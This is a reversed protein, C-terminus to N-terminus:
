RLSSNGASESTMLRIVCIEITSNLPIRFHVELCADAYATTLLVVAYSNNFGHLTRTVPPAPKM